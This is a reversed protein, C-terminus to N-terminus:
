FSSLALFMRIAELRAVLAFTEEFEIREQQAYGKCVLRAKNRIVEENENLKNKSIWKTGIVNKDKPRPVLEWANNKEIQELEEDMAKVWCEDKCAEKVNQPETSSLLVLYSSAEAITRRTQVGARPELKGLQEENNKIYCKSGLFKFHKVSPTEGYWLDHPTQTRNVRVNTKNLIVVVAYAAEGWVTAPTGSEDLMACAMQQVTRNMREVVGNQQPTRATSFERRIGHEECFDFFENSTFEGGRDSRLCKIKHDSENEALAKFSKFKEFAEDKHKMLGLWIM